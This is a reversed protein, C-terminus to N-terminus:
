EKNQQKNPIEHTVPSHARYGNGVAYYTVATGAGAAAVYCCGSLAPVAAILLMLRFFGKKVKTEGGQTGFKLLWGDRVLRGM